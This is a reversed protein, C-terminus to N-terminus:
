PATRDKTAALAELDLEAGLADAIRRLDKPDSTVVTRRHRVGNLVVVADVIDSTGAAALAVGVRRAEPELFPQVVCGKLLRSLAPQPGGRWAQALVVAPVLPRAGNKLSLFHLAWMDKSQAEAAMLAGTDYVFRTM